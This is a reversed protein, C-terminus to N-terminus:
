RILGIFWAYVISAIVIGIFDTFLDWLMGNYNPIKWNQAIEWGICACMVAVSSITIGVIFSGILMAGFSIILHKITNSM